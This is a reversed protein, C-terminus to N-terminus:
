GGAQNLLNIQMFRENDISYSVKFRTPRIDTGQFIPEIKDEVTKGEPLNKTWRNELAKREGRNFNSNMPLFNIKGIIWKTLICNLWIITFSAM